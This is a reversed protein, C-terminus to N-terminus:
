ASAERLQEVWMDVTKGVNVACMYCLNASTTDGAEAELRAGLAECLAPFEANQAYTSVIALTEPWQRLDSSQVLRGLESKIIASVISLFPRRKTERDFYAAKTKAWLEAGGCSALLLADAMNGTRLCCQVAAEFNGVLLAKKILTEAEMEPPTPSAARGDRGGAGATAAAAAAAAARGKLVSVPPTALDVADLGTTVSSVGFDPPPGGNAGPAAPEDLVIPNESSVGTSAGSPLEYVAQLNFLDWLLTRNDKACSMLLSSDDPCWAVSLIGCRFLCFFRGLRSAQTHGQLTALPLTTSSRLDWLKLVPNNDDGSATVLHLGEDPNWAVDACSARSSDRLECWPKKQRLDWVICSGNAAATALIHSVQTNWAVKTVEASHRSTNPPPAPVFVTPAEPRDLAMIFVENDSGGSALLHSSSKHPNFQLGNVAGQHRHVSAVQPQPHSAVLKAPDWVNVTGDGMGGAILGYPYEAQKTAMESWALTAFRAS